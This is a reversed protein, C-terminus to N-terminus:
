SAPHTPESRPNHQGSPHRASPQNPPAIAVPVRLTDTSTRHRATVRHSLEHPALHHCPSPISRTCSARVVSAACPAPRPTAVQSDNTSHKGPRPLPTSPPDAAPQRLASVRRDLFDPASGIPWLATTGSKASSAARCYTDSSASCLSPDRTAHTARLPQRPTSQPLPFHSPRRPLRDLTRESRSVTRLLPQPLEAGTGPGASRHRATSSM